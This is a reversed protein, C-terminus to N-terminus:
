SAHMEELLTALPRDQTSEDAAAPDAGLANDLTSVIHQYGPPNMPPLRAATRALVDDRAACLQAALRMRGDTVAVGALGELCWSLYMPNGIAQFLNAAELFLPRAREPRGDALEVHGLQTTSMAIGWLDDFRRATALAAESLERARTLDGTRLAILGLHALLAAATRDDGRDRYLAHSEELLAAAEDFRDNLQANTGLIRLGEATKGTDKLTRFLEVSETALEDTREHRGAHMAQWAMLLLANALEHDTGAERTAALGREALGDARETEGTYLVDYSLAILATAYGARDASAEALAVAEEHDETADAYRDQLRALLGRTTLATVLDHGIGHRRALDVLQECWTTAEDFSSQDVALKAAGTLAGLRIVAAVRGAEPLSLAARSYRLGETVHGREFWFRWMAGCLRLATEAELAELARSMAARLNDQEPEISEPETREALAVFYETHMRTVADAEGDGQLRELGYERITELMGIRPAYGAPRVSVLSADVLESLNDSLEPVISEAAGLPCGGVFVSLFRFLAKAPESLLQYSWAIADRMTKQRDPVDHPGGVLMPLRRELRHLLAEPPLLRVRAAALEIALPIGELRRCIEAVAPADGPAPEAGVARARELFLAGAPSDAPEAVGPPPVELPAIRYTREGRVRLPIRSTILATVGPCGTLLALLDTRAEVLHEVNDLLLLVRKDRLTAALRQPVPVADREDLGFQDAIATIVMSNARLPALDVFVAGDAYEDAMQALVELALRTKGVGGPGTLTLLRTEGRALLEVLAAAVGARGILPTLPRPIAHHSPGVPTAPRAAALLEARRDPSLRLADALLTVTGLRPTRDPDRELDSVARPSIGAREALTEQTLGAALRLAKLTPGFGNTRATM